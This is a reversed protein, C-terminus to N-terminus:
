KNRWDILLGKKNLHKRIPVDFLRNFRTTPQDEKVIKDTLVSKIHANNACMVDTTTQDGILIVHNKDIGNDKMLRCLKRGFPKGVSNWFKIGLATAYLSVRKGTNNSTIILDIGNQEMKEKFEIARQSPLKTKYSDLTNDLDVLITTIEYKKFFLIDIDFVSSAHAFPIYKRCM